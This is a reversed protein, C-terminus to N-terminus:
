TDHRRLRQVSVAPAGTPADDWNVTVVNFQTASAVAMVNAPPAPAPATEEYEGNFLAADNSTFSGDYDLDGIAWVAPDTESYYGNFMAADNSTVVGDLDLDLRLTFKVLTATADVPQGAFLPADIGDGFGVVLGNDATGVATFNANWAATSSTIGTGQWDGDNFGRAVLAEVHVAPNADTADYDVMLGNDAVDLTSSSDISLAAAGGDIVLVRHNTPTRGAGLSAITATAGDSLHLAALHVGLEAAPDITLRDATGSVNVIPQDAGPDAIITAAGTVNLTHTTATWTAASAPSLWPPTTLLVRRELSEIPVTGGAPLLSRRRSSTLAARFRAAFGAPTKM